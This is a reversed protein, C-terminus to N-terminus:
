SEDMPPKSTDTFADLVGSIELVQRVPESPGTVVFTCGQALAANRGGVLAGIGISDLFTVASMDVEVEAVQGAAAAFMARLPDAAALDLEGQLAIVLRQATGRVTYSWHPASRGGDM